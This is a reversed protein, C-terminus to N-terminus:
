VQVHWCLYPWTLTLFHHKIFEVKRRREWGNNQPTPQRQVHTETTVAVGSHHGCTMVRWAMQEKMHDGRCLTMESQLLAVFSSHIRGESIHLPLEFRARCVPSCRQFVNGVTSSFPVCLSVKIFNCVRSWGILDPGDKTEKTKMQYGRMFCNWHKTSQKMQKVESVKSCIISWINEPINECCLSTECYILSM